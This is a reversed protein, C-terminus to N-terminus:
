KKSCLAAYDAALAALADMIDNTSICDGPFRENFSKSQVFLTQNLAATTEMLWDVRHGTPTGGNALIRNIRERDKIGRSLAQSHDTVVRYLVSSIEAPKM